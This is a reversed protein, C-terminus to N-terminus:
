RAAPHRIAFTDRNGYTLRYGAATLLDTADAVADATLHDHEFLVALPAAPSSWGVQRLIELDFGETDIHLLDIRPSGLERLLDPWSLTPVLVTEIRDSLNPIWEEHSMVVSRDFSALQDAWDPDDPHSGTVRHLELGDNSTSVGVNMPRIGPVFRYTGCLRQYLDELPEIVVGHWRRKIVHAHIPDGTIGDNSGIQVFYGRRRQDVHHQAARVAPCSTIMPKPRPRRSAIPHVVRVGLQHIVPHPETISRVANKTRAIPSQASRVRSSPDMLGLTAASGLRPGGLVTWALRWATPPGLGVIRDEAGAHLSPLRPTPRAANAPRDGRHRRGGGHGRPGRRELWATIAAQPPPFEFTSWQFTDMGAAAFFARTEAYIHHTHPLYVPPSDPPLLAPDVPVPWVWPRLSILRPNTAGVAKELWAFPHSIPSRLPVESANNTTMVFVGGPRLVRSIEWMALEPQLLHEIVESLVVVDFSADTFRCPSATAGSGDDDATSELEGRFSDAAFGIHHAPFDLGVYTPTSTTIREAVLAPAM